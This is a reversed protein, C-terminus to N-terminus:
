SDHSPVGMTWTAAQEECSQPCHPVRHLQLPLHHKLVAQVCGAHSCATHWGLAHRLHLLLLSLLARATLGYAPASEIEM